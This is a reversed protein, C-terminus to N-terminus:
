RADSRTLDITFNVEFERMVHGNEARDKAYAMAVNEFYPVNQLGALFNALDVDTPVM